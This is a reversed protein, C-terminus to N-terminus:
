SAEEIKKLEKQAETETLNRKKASFYFRITVKDKFVDVLELKDLLKSTKYANEKFKEFNDIKKTLDLKITAYPNIPKYSSVSRYNDALAQIDIEALFVPKKLSNKSQLQQKLQGLHCIIRSIIIEAQVNPSFIHVSSKGVKYDEINFEGLLAEVIGKLDAFSTNVAVGLKYIEKPLNARQEYYVKAIEFFKLKEKKGQNERINKVLSTWLSTRMYL